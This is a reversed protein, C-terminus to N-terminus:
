QASRTELVWRESAPHYYAIQSADGVLASALELFQHLSVQVTMGSTM